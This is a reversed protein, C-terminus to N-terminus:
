HYPHSDNKIGFVLLELEWGGINCSSCNTKLNEKGLTVVHGGSLKTNACIGNQRPLPGSGTIHLNLLQIASFFFFHACVYTGLNKNTKNICLIYCLKCYYYFKYYNKYYIGYLLQNEHLSKMSKQLVTTGQVVYPQLQCTHNQCLHQTINQIINLVTAFTFCHFCPGLKLWETKPLTKHTWLTVAVSM